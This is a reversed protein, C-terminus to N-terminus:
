PLAYQALWALGAGAVVPQYGELARANEVLCQRVEEPSLHPQGQLLLAVLGTVHPAAFSTGVGANGFGGTPLCGTIELIGPTGGPAMVHPGRDEGGIPGRSSYDEVVNGNKDTAGVTIVGKADAPSTMSAPDPGRNGASKVIAMGLAWAEDCARAERSTGDLAPGAGWSCNAVHVGDELADQIAMAGSFDDSNLQDITALVKYNYIMADSAVGAHVQDNGGIIGAVFTGHSDPNGWPEVTYNRKQIVRGVLAPHSLAVESDIVGVIVGKGTLAPNRLLPDRGRSYTDGGITSRTVTIDRHLPRCRDLLAIADDAAIDALAEAPTVTRVTSNLWCTQTLAPANGHAAMSEARHAFLAGITKELHGRVGNTRRYAAERRLTIAAGRLASIVRLQADRNDALGPILENIVQMMQDLGAKTMSKQVTMAELMSTAGNDSRDFELVARVSSAGLSERGARPSEALLATLGPTAKQRLSRGYRNEVFTEARKAEDSIVVSPVSERRNTAPQGEAGAAWVGSRELTGEDIIAGDPAHLIETATAGALKLEYFGNPGFDQPDETIYRNPGDLLCGGPIVGNGEVRQWSMGPAKTPKTPYGDERGYPMGGHGICRTVMNWRPHRDYYVCRHEHGCIWAAIRGAELHAALKAVMKRGQSELLSFPQHHTLLVVKRTGANAIQRDIWPIQRQELDHDDYASDLGLILWHDNRLAFYSARQNFRPLTLKFYGAGGSYMEHNSNLARHKANADVPWINLFRQQVEEETGAYYVDGLHIVVDYTGDAAITRACVPAGYMGTGWDGMMAIRANNPITEPEEPATQWPQKGRYRIKTIVVKFWGLLDSDAFRVLKEPGAISEAGPGSRRSELKSAEAAKETLASQIISVLRDDVSVMVGPRSVGEAEALRRQAEAFAMQLEVREAPDDTSERIAQDLVSGAALDGPLAEEGAARTQQAFRTSMAAALSEATLVANKLENSM